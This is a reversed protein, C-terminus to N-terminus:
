SEASSSYFVKKGDPIRQIINAKVLDSLKRKLTRRGIHDFRNFVEVNQARGKSKIFESVEQHTQGLKPRDLEPLRHSNTKKTRLVAPKEAEAVLRATPQYANLVSLKLLLLNKELLLSTSPKALGLHKLIDLLNLINKIRSILQLCYQAVRPEHQVINDPKVVVQQRLVGSQAIYPKHGEGKLFLIFDSLLRDSEKACLQSFFGDETNLVIKNLLRSCRGFIEVMGRGSKM